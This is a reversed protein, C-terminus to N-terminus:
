PAGDLSSHDHPTATAGFTGDIQFPPHADFLNAYVGGGHRNAEAADVLTPMNALLPPFCPPTYREAVETQNM